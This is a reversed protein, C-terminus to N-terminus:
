VPDDTAIVGLESLQHRLRENVAKLREIQDRYRIDRQEANAAHMALLRELERANPRPLRSPRRGDVPAPTKSPAPTGIRELRSLVPRYAQKYLVGRSVGAKRAFEVVTLPLKEHEAVLLAREVARRTEDQDYKM